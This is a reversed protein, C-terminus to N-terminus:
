DYHGYCSLIIITDGEIKYVLRHKETIRRSLYGAYGRKLIEPKGTGKGRPDRMIDQILKNIRKYVKKDLALWESYQAFAISEFSIKM